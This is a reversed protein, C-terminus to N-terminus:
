NFQTYFIYDHKYVSICMYQTHIHLRIYTVCRSKHLYTTHIRSASREVAAPVLMVGLESLTNFSTASKLYRPEQSCFKIFSKRTRLARAQDAM